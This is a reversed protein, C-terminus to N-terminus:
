CMSLNHELLSQDAVSLEYITKRALAGGLRGGPTGGTSVPGYLMILWCPRGAANKLRAAAALM